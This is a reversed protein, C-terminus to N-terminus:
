PTGTPSSRRQSPPGCRGRDAAARWARRTRAPPVLAPGYVTSLQPSVHCDKHPESGREADVEICCRTSSTVLSRSAATLGVPRAYAPSGHPWTICTLQPGGADVFPCRAHRSVRNDVWGGPCEHALVGGGRILLHSLRDGARVEGVPFPGALRRDGLTGRQQTPDRLQVQLLALVQRAEDDPLHALGVGIREGLDVEGRRDIGVVGVVGRHKQSVLRNLQEPARPRRQDPTARQPRDQADHRPVVRVVLDTPKRSGVQRHPVRHQDLVCRLARLRRGGLVPQEQLRAKGLAGVDVHVRGVLLDALHDLGNRSSLM